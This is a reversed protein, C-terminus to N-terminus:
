GLRPAPTLGTGRKQEVMDKRGADLRFSNYESTLLFRNLKGVFIAQIEM